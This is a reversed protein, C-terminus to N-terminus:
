HQAIRLAKPEESSVVVETSDTVGRIVLHIIQESPSDQLQSNASLLIKNKLGTQIDTKNPQTQHNLVKATGFLLASHISKVIGKQIIQKQYNNQLGYGPPQM